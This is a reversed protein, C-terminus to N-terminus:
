GTVQGLRNEDNSNGLHGKGGSFNGLVEGALDNAVRSRFQVTESWGIARLGPVQGKRLVLSIECAGVLARSRGDNDVTIERRFALNQDAHRIRPDGKGLYQWKEKGVRNELRAEM